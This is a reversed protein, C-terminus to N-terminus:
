KGKFFYAEKLNSYLEISINLAAIAENYNKIKFLVEVKLKIQM